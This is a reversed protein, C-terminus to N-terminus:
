GGRGFVWSLGVEARVDWPSLRTSDNTDDLTLRERVLARNLALSVFPALRGWRLGIRVRAEVSAGWVTVARTTMLTKAKGELSLRTVQPLLAVDTWALGSGVRLALGAGLRSVVYTAEGPGLPVQRQGAVDATLAAGLAQYIQLVALLSGAPARADGDTSGGVAIGVEVERGRLPAGGPEPRAAPALATENWTKAWAVLLVAALSVREACGSPAVVERVGLTAGTRDRLAVRMVGGVVTVESEGLRELTTSEGLRQLEDNVQSAMPCLPESTAGAAAAGDVAFLLAALFGHM